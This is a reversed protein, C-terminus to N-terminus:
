NRQLPSRLFSLRRPFFLVPPEVHEPVDVHEVMNFRFLVNVRRELLVVVPIAADDSEEINGKNCKRDNAVVRTPPSFDPRPEDRKTKDPASHAVENIVAIPVPRHM